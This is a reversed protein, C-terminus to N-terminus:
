DKEWMHQCYACFGRNSLTGMEGCRVCSGYSEGDYSNMAVDFKEDVDDLSVTQTCNPYKSCGWFEGYKGNRIRMDSGCSPCKPM